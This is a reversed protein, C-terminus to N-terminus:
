TFILDRQEGSRKLMGKDKLRKGKDKKFENLKILWEVKVGNFRFAM